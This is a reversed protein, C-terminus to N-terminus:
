IAFRASATSHLLLQLFVGSAAVQKQPPSSAALSTPHLHLPCRPQQQLDIQASSRLKMADTSILSVTAQPSSPPTRPPQSLSNHQTAQHLGANISFRYPLFLSAPECPLLHTHPPQNATATTTSSPSPSSPRTLPSLTLSLTPWPPAASPLLFRIQLPDCM